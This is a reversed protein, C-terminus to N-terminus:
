LRGLAVILAALTPARAPGGLRHLAAYERDGSPWTVPWTILPRDDGSAADLRECAERLELAELLEPLAGLVERAMAEEAERAEDTPVGGSRISARAKLERLRTTTITM